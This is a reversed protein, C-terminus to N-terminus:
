ERGHQLLEREQMDRRLGSVAHPLFLRPVKARNELRASFGLCCLSLSHDLFSFPSLFSQHSYQLFVQVVIKSHYM